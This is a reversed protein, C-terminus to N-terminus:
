ISRESNDAGEVIVGQDCENRENPAAWDDRHWGLGSCCRWWRVADEALLFRPRYTGNHGALSAWVLFSASGAAATRGAFTSANAAGSGARQGFPVTRSYQKFSHV